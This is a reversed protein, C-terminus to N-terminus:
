ANVRYIVMMWWVNDRDRWNTSQTQSCLNLSLYKRATLLTFSIPRWWRFPWNSDVTSHPLWILSQRIVALRQRQTMHRHFCGSGILYASLTLCSTMELNKSRWCPFYNCTLPLEFRDVFNILIHKLNIHFTKESLLHPSFFWWWRCLGHLAVRPSRFM